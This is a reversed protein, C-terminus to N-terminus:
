GEDDEKEVPLTITVVTGKDEESEIALGGGHAAAYRYATPLGFGTGGQNKKTSTGPRFQRIDALVDVIAAPVVVLGIVM